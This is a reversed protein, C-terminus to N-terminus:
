FGRRRFFFIVKGKLADKTIMGYTRSDNMDSRYDNLVLFEDEGLTYPLTLNTDALQTPYFIDESSRLGNLMVTDGESDVTDGAIAIIRGLRVKGDARYAVVDGSHYTELKYTVCLDGDRLAPYMNNGSMRYIGFVFTLVLWIVAFVAFLKILLSVLANKLPKKERTKEPAEPSKKHKSRLFPFKM